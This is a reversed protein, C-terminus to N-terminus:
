ERIEKIKENVIRDYQKEMQTYSAYAEEGRHDPLDYNEKLYAALYISVREAGSANLHDGKDLCDKSWDIGVPNATDNLNLYAIDNERAYAKLSGLCDKKGIRYCHILGYVLLVAIIM